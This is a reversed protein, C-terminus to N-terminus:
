PARTESSTPKVPAAIESTIPAAIPMKAPYTPPRSPPASIRKVSKKRTMGSRARNITRTAIRPALRCFMMRTM